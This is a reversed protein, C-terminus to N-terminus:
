LSVLSILGLDLFIPKNLFIFCHEIFFDVSHLEFLDSYSLSSCVMPSLPQSLLSLLVDM